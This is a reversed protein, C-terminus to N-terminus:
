TIACFNWIYLIFKHLKKSKKLILVNISTLNTSKPGIELRQVKDNVGEKVTHNVNYM